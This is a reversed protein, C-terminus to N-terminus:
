GCAKVLKHFLATEAGSNRFFSGGLNMLPDSVKVGQRIFGVARPGEARVRQKAALSYNPFLIDTKM